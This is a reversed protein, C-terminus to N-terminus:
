MVYLMRLELRLLPQSERKKCCKSSLAKRKSPLHEVVQAVDGARLVKKKNQKELEDIHWRM